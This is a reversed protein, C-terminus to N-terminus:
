IEIESLDTYILELQQQQKKTADKVSGNTGLYEEVVSTYEDMRDADFLKEAIEKIKEQLEDFSLKEEEYTQQQTIYDVSKVGDVEEQKAVADAIAAQLNEATFNEIKTPFYDFRSRALFQDNNVFYASSNIEKGNEDTGNPHLYAIIDVLDCIPDISRKDGAPYIKTYDEGDANKFERTAEHSIFVVTYGAGTLRNIQKAFESAYEKYLGFGENGDKIRSVGYLDCIYTECMQAAAQVTDFILTSYFKRAKGLNNPNTLQKNVKVFDSWSQIPAFPIGARANIGKEFALYYPKPLRTSQKTKGTSNSGYILITKGGMDHSVVSIEPKFIDIAM